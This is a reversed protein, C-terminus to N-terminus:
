RRILQAAFLLGKVFHENFLPSGPTAATELEAAIENRLDDKYSDILGAPLIHKLQDVASM